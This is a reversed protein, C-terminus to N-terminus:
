SYPKVCFFKGVFEARGIEPRLFVFFFSSSKRVSLRAAGLTRGHLHLGPGTEVIVPGARHLEIDSQGSERCLARPEDCGNEHVAHAAQM